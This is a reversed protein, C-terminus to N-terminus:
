LYIKINFPNNQRCFYHKFAIKNIAPKLDADVFVDKTTKGADLINFHCM